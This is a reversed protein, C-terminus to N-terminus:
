DTHVGKGADESTDKRFGSIILATGVLIMSLLMGAGALSILTIEVPTQNLLRNLHSGYILQYVADPIALGACLIGVRALKSRRVQLFLPIVMAVILICLVTTLKETFATNNRRYGIICKKVSYSGQRGTYGAISIPLNAAQLTTSIKQVPEPERDHQGREHAVDWEERYEGYSAVNGPCVIEQEEGAARQKDHAEPAREAIGLMVAAFDTARDERPQTGQQESKENRENSVERFLDWGGVGGQADTHFRRREHEGVGSSLLDRGGIKQLVM